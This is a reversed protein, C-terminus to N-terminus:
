RRPSSREAAVALRAVERACGWSVTVGGGGHGYNHVLWPHDEDAALRVQPRVPRLGIRRERVPLGCLRPEAEVCRELIAREIRPERGVSEGDRRSGGLIVRDGQPLIYTTIEDVNDDHEIFFADLGPNDLVLLDGRVPRIPDHPVLDRAGLGTCNVVVPGLTPLTTATVPETLEIRTGTARLREVLYSLYGSMEIMPVSYRWGNSYGPPLTAPDCRAANAVGPGPHPVDLGNRAAEVGDVMAVGTAPDDALGRFVELSELAWDLAREHAVMHPGWIAGAACSTTRHPEDITRVVVRRGQEALCIASTLGSVGAGVVVVDIEQGM